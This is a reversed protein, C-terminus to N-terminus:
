VEFSARSTRLGGQWALTTVRGWEIRIRFGRWQPEEGWRLPPRTGCGSWAWGNQGVTRCQWRIPSSSLQAPSAKCWTFNCRDLDETVIKWFGIDLWHPKRGLDVLGSFLMNYSVVFWKDELQRKLDFEVPLVDIYGGLDGDGDLDELLKAAGSDSGIRSFQFSVAAFGDYTNSCISMVLVGRGVLWRVRKWSRWARECLRSHGKESSRKEWGWGTKKHNNYLKLFTLLFAYQAM